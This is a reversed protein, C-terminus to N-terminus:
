LFVFPIITHAMTGQNWAVGCGLNSKNLILDGLPLSQLYEQTGDTSGNDVIALRSLDDGNKIMSDICKKTYEVSNYCAFTISYDIDQSTPM